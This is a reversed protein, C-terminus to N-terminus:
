ARDKSEIIDAHTSLRTAGPLLLLAKEQRAQEEKSPREEAAETQREM